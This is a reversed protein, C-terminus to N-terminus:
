MSENLTRISSTPVRFTAVPIETSTTELVGSYQHWDNNPGQLITLNFRIPIGCTSSCGAFRVICSFTGNFISSPDNFNYSQIEVSYPSNQMNRILRGGLSRVTNSYSIHNGDPEYV